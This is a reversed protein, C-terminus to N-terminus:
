FALSGLTWAGLGAFVIGGAVRIRQLPVLRQLAQGGYAGLFTVAIMSLSLAVFVMLPDHLRAMLNAAQIQTLDGFEGIFIVVFATVAERSPTGAKEISAEREGEVQEHEEGVLLLYAAGALFLAGIIVDKATSPVLSLLSGAAVALGMHIVLAVSAGLVIMSARAKTSMVVTAIFTKDPLALVFMLAFVGAFTGINM